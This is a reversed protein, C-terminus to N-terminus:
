AKEFQETQGITKLTYSSSLRSSQFCRGLYSFGFWGMWTIRFVRRIGGPQHAGFSPSAFAPFTPAFLFLFSVHFKVHPLSLFLNPDHRSLRPPASTPICPPTLPVTEPSSSTMPSGSALVSSAASNSPHSFYNGKVGVDWEVGYQCYKSLFHFM